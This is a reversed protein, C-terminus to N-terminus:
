ATISHVWAHEPDGVKVGADIGPLDQPADVELHAAPLNM